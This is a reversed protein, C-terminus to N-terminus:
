GVSRAMCGNMALVWSMRISTSIWVEHQCREHNSTISRKFPKCGEVPNREQVAEIVKERDFDLIRNIFEHEYRNVDILRIILMWQCRDHTHRTHRTHRFIPYGRCKRPSVSLRGRQFHAVINESLGRYKTIKQKQDKTM